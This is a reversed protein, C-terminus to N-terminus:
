KENILGGQSNIKVLCQFTWYGECRYPDHIYGSEFKKDIISIIKGKFTALEQGEKLWMVKYM